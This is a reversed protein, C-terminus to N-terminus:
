GLLKRCEELSPVRGSLVVKGDVVLAPTAMVGYGVIRDMETVKELQYEVGLENLAKEAVEALKVCRACGPGLVEVKKM